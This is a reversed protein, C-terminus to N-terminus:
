RSIKLSVFLHAATTLPLYVKLKQCIYALSQFLPLAYREANRKCQPWANKKAHCICMNVYCTAMLNKISADTYKEKETPDENLTSGKENGGAPSLHSPPTAPPPTEPESLSNDQSDDGESLETITNKSPVDRKLKSAPIIPEHKM